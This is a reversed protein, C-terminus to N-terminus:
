PYWELNERSSQPQRNSDGLHVKLFIFIVNLTKTEWWIVTESKTGWNGNYVTNLVRFTHFASDPDQTWVRYPCVLVTLHMCKCLLLTVVCCIQAREFIVTTLLSSPYGRSVKYNAIILYLVCIIGWHHPDQNMQTRPDSDLPIFHLSFCLKVM